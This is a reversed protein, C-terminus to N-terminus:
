LVAIVEGNSRLVPFAFAARIGRAAVPHSRLFDPDHLTDLVWRPKATGAVIGPLGEGRHLRTRDTLRIFQSYEDPHKSHWVSSVLPAAAYFRIHPEGTVFPNDRFREDSLTDDVVFIDDSFMAHGCFSIDRPAELADIGVRSKFWQREADIITILAIPADLLRS